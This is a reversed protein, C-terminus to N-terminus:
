SITRFKVRNLYLGDPPATSGAKSRDHSDIIKPMESLDIRGNACDILTGVIIRVMNYLFGDAAIRIRILEGKEIIEIHNVTRVTDAIKSGAAMFASFDHTGVFFKAARRMIEVQEATM